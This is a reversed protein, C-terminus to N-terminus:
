CLFRCGYYENFHLFHLDFSYSGIFGVVKSFIDITKRMSGPFYHIHVINSGIDNRFKGELKISSLKIIESSNRTIKSLFFKDDQISGTFYSEVNFGKENIIIDKALFSNFREVFKDYSLTTKYKISIGRKIFVDNFKM